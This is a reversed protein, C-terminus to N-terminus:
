VRYRNEDGGVDGGGIAVDDMAVVMVLAMALVLVRALWCVHMAVAVLALM